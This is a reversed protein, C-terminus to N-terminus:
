QGSKELSQEPTFGYAFDHWYISVYDTSLPPQTGNSADIKLVEKYWNDFDTIVKKNFDVLLKLDDISFSGDLTFSDRSIEVWERIHKIEPYRKKFYDVHM